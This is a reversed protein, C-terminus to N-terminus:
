YKSKLFCRPLILASSTIICIVVNILEYSGQHWVQFAYTVPPVFSILIAAVSPGLKQIAKQNFYIPIILSAFSIFLLLMWNAALIDHLNKGYLYGSSVFFLVWFRTALIEVASLNAQKSLKDSQVIYIYFAIGALMGLFLGQFVNRTNAIQYSSILLVLSAILLLGGFLYYWSHYKRYQVIFGILALTIFLASMAIFPDSLHTAYVMSTWDVGLVFSMLLFTGWHKYCAVYTKKLTKLSLLNFVLLAITSMIFLAVMPHIAACLSDIFVFSIATLFVYMAADVYGGLFLKM